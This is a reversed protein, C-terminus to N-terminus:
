AGVEPVDAFIERIRDFRFQKDFGDIPCHAYFHKGSASVAFPWLQRVGPNKGESAYDIGIPTHADIADQLEPYKSAYPPPVRLYDGLTRSGSAEHQANTSPMIQCIGEYVRRLAEVDDDARHTQVYQPDILRMLDLLSRGGSLIMTDIILNPLDAATARSHDRLLRAMMPGDFLKGNHAIVPDNGIFARFEDAVDAPDRGHQALFADTISNVATADASMPVDSLVYSQYREVKGDACFKLGAIQVIKDRCLNLGTTEGDVLVIPRTVGASSTSNKVKSNRMGPEKRSDYVAWLDGIPLNALFKLPLMMRLLKLQNNFEPIAISGIDLRRSVRLRM